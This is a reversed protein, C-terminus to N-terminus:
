RAGARRRFMFAAIADLLSFSLRKRPASVSIMMRYSGRNMMVKRSSRKQKKSLM